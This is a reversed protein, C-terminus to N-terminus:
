ICPHLQTETERFRKKDDQNAGTVESSRSERYMWSKRTTGPTQRMIKRGGSYLTALGTFVPIPVVGGVGKGDGKASQWGRGREGRRRRVVRAMKVVEGEGRTNHAGRNSGAPDGLVFIREGPWRM